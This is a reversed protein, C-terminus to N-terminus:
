DRIGAVANAGFIRLTHEFWETRRLVRLAGPEPQPDAFADHLLVLSADTEAANPVVPLADGTETHRQWRQNRRLLLLHRPAGTQAGLKLHFTASRFAMIRHTSSSSVGSVRRFSTRSRM